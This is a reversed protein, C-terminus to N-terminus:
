TTKLLNALEKGEKIMEELDEEKEKRRKENVSFFLTLLSIIFTTTISALVYSSRYSLISFDNNSFLNHALWFLSVLLLGMTSLIFFKKLEFVLSPNFIIIILIIIPILQFISKGIDYLFVRKSAYGFYKFQSKLENKKSTYSKLEMSKTNQVSELRNAFDNLGNARMEAIIAKTTEKSKGIIAKYQKKHAKYPKWDTLKDYEIHIFTICYGILFM